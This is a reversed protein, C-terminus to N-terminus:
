SVVVSVAAEVNGTDGSSRLCGGSVFHVSLTSAPPVDSIPPAQWLSLVKASAEASHMVTPARRQVTLSSCASAACPVPQPKSLRYTHDEPAGAVTVHSVGVIPVTAAPEDSSMSLSGAVHRRARALCGTRQQALRRM